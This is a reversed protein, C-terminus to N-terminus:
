LGPAKWLATTVGGDVLDRQAQYATRWRAAVESYISHFEPDPEHEREWKVLAAAGQALSAYEGIATGAAIATGLATAEKVVPIRIAKGTVNAVIQSWLRGKSGGGAFVLRGTAAGAFREILRLNEATVIAANEELARFITARNCAPDLSLNLLSPAAHYWASYRMTDSLVALVGGAGAPVAGALEELITYADCGRALAERKESDCFADRFWRMAAGAFFVIAEAQWQGPIAHCNVRINMDPDTRPEALNVEQQWFTGGIVAAQGPQVVGLGVCGIQVDGGGMVVPTGPRLGTDRAAAASVRGMLTGPEVVPPFIDTPLGIASLGDPAWDRKALSFIGTTCANSPDSAIEGSLRFLVWDNLMSLRRVRAFIAPEHRKVWLLRPIASLAFTQGSLRYYDRELQAHNEQLFRVEDSARADVNACAWVERDDADYLVIGERMSSASVAAVDDANAQAQALVGQICRAVLAWNRDVDFGMAGPYRPDSLHTWEEAATAVQTGDTDFLVARASGTGADIALLFRPM